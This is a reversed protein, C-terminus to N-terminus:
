ETAKAAAQAPEAMAAPEAAAQADVTAAQDAAATQEVKAAEAKKHQEAKELADAAEPPMYSEDHKALVEEAHMVGDEQIRGQAVVGEGEKFLDPLIGTYRVPISRHSDTIEFYVDLGEESRRVSGEQVLGGIRFSSGVPAKNQYIDTPTYYLNLNEDIANLVLAVVGILAALAAGVFVVRKQRAKM